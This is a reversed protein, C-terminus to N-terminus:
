PSCKERRTLPSHASKHVETPYPLYIESFKTDCKYKNTLTYNVSFVRNKHFVLFAFLKLASNLSEPHESLFPLIFVKFIIMKTIMQRRTTETEGLVSFVKGKPSLFVNLRGLPVSLITVVSKVQPTEEWGGSRFTKNKHTHISSHTLTHTNLKDDNPTPPLVM